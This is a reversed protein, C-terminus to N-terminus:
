ETRILEAGHICRELKVKSDRISFGINTGFQQVAHLSVFGTTSASVYLANTDDLYQPDMHLRGDAGKTVILHEIQSGAILVSIVHANPVSTSERLVFAGVASAPRMQRSLQRLMSEAENRGPVHLDQPLLFDPPPDIEPDRMMECKMTQCEAFGGSEMSVHWCSSGTPETLEPSAADTVLYACAGSGANVKMGVVWAGNRKHYFLFLHNGNCFSPAQSTAVVKTRFVPKDNFSVGKLRLYTGNLFSCFNMAGTVSVSSAHSGLRTGLQLQGSQSLESLNSVNVAASNSSDPVAYLMNPSSEVQRKITERGIYLNAGAAGDEDAKGESGEIGFIPHYVGEEHGEGLQWRQPSSPPQDLNSM